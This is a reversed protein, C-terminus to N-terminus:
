SKRSQKKFFAWVREAGKFSQIPQNGRRLSVSGPWGHGGVADVVSITMAGAATSGYVTTMVSGATTVTPPTISHNAEVWFKVTDALPMFPTSQARAVVPNRSFGGTLPVENDQGGNILMIPLPERPSKEFSFMAGVVPAVAALRDSREVAYVLTMMAGNSGGTMYIRRPDARHERILLDILADLYAIDDSQGVQHRMLFGTNWAHRGPSWESGEAFVVSFREAAALDDFDSRLRQEDASGRGGHLVIITPALPGQRLENVLVARRSVGNVVLSLEKADNAFAPVCLTLVLLGVLRLKLM